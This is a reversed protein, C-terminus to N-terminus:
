AFNELRSNLEFMKQNSLVAVLILMVVPLDEACLQVVHSGGSFQIDAPTNHGQQGIFRPCDNELKMSICGM